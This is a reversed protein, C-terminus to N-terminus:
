WITQVHSSDAIIADSTIIPVNLFKATAVIIRDHLEPVDDIAVATLVITEDVPVVTYNNSQSIISILQPLSVTIRRAEALYMVEMLTISSIYVHHLGKDAENLVRDAGEGLKPHKGLHRIIAVTDALYHM